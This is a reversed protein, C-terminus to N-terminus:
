QQAIRKTAMFMPVAGPAVGFRAFAIVDDDDAAAPM